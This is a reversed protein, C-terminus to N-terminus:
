GRGAGNQNESGALGLAAQGPSQVTSAVPLPLRPLGAGAGTATGTDLSLAFDSDRLQSLVSESSRVMHEFLSPRQAKLEM